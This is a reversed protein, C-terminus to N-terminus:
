IHDLLRSDLKSSFVWTSIILVSYSRDFMSGAFIPRALIQVQLHHPLKNRFSFPEASSRKMVRVLRQADQLHVVPCPSLKKDFKGVDVNISRLLDVAGSGAELFTIRARKIYESLLTQYKRVSFIWKLLQNIKRHKCCRCTRQLGDLAPLGMWLM